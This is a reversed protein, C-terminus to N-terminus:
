SISRDPFLIRCPPRWAAILSSDSAPPPSSRCCSAASTVRDARAPLEQRQKTLHARLWAILSRLDEAPVANKAAILWPTISTLAVPAFDGVIDYTLAYVAGNVVHTAL